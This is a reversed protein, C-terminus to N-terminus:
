PYLAERVPTRGAGFTATLEDEVLRTGPKFELTLIRSRLRCYVDSAILDSSDRKM